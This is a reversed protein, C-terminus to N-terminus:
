TPCFLDSYMRRYIRKKQHPPLLLLLDKVMKASFNMCGDRLIVFLENTIIAGEGYNIKVFVDISSDLLEILENILKQEKNKPETIKYKELDDIDM